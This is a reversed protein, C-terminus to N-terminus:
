PERVIIGRAKFVDSGDDTSALEAGRPPFRNTPPNLELVSDIARQLAM